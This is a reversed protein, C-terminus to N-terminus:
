PLKTPHEQSGVARPDELVLKGDKVHGICTMQVPDHQVWLSGSLCLSKLRKELLALKQLRAQVSDPAVVGSGADDLAAREMAASLSTADGDGCDQPEEKDLLLSNLSAEFTRQDEVSESYVRRRKRPNSTRASVTSEIAVTPLASIGEFASSLAQLNYSAGGQGDDGGDPGENGSVDGSEDGDDGGEGGDGAQEDRDGAQEGGEGGGEDGAGALFLEETGDEAQKLDNGQPARRPSPPVERHGPDIRL